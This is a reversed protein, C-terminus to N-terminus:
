LDLPTTSVGDSGVKRKIYLYPLAARQQEYAFLKNEKTRLGRNIGVGPKKSKLVNLYIEKTLKNLSLSLDKSAVKTNKDTVALDGGFCVYTKSTLAVCGKGSWEVKEREKCDSCPIWEEGNTKTLIFQERHADSGKSPFWNHYEEYFSRKVEPKIVSELSPGSLGYYLSDTDMEVLEFDSKDVYKLLCDYYFQLMRLKAYQYVFFGIQLPLGWKVIKKAM